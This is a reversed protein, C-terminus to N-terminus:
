PREGIPPLNNLATVYVSNAMIYYVSTFICYYYYIIIFLNIIIFIHAILYHILKKMSIYFDLQM